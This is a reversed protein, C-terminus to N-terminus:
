KRERAFLPRCCSAAHPIKDNTFWMTRSDSCTWGVQEMGLAELQPSPADRLVALAVDAFESCDTLAYTAGPGLVVDRYYEVRIADAIAQRLDSM